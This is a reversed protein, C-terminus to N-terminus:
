PLLADSFVTQEKLISRPFVVMCIHPLLHPLLSLTCFCFLLLVFFYRSSVQLQLEYFYVYHLQCLSLTTCGQCLGHKNPIGVSCLDLLSLDPFHAAWHHDTHCSILKDRSFLSANSGHLTSCQASEDYYGHGGGM